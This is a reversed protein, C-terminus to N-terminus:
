LEKKGTFLKKVWSWVFVFPLFILLWLKKAFIIVMALIGAVVGKGSKSGATVAVLSALGVAAIKDGTSYDAYRFGTEFKYNNLAEKLLSESPNFQDSGGVWIFKNFGRRGLKLAIANFIPGSEKDNVNIAWYATRSTKDYIPKQAWGIIKLEEFGNKTREINAEETSEAIGELLLEADLDSWDNDQVYGSESYAFILQEMTDPNIVLADADPYETGNNLFLFQRADEGLLIGLGDPLQYEGHSGALSYKKTEYEWILKEFAQTLAEDTKPYVKQGAQASQSYVLLFGVLLTKILTSM